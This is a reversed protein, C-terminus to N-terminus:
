LIFISTGILVAGAFVQIWKYYQYIEKKMSTIITGIIPAYIIVSFISNAIGFCLMLLLSQAISMGAAYTLVIILPSCPTVAYIIGILFYSYDKYNKILSNNSRCSNCSSCKNKKLASVVIIIGFIINVIKFTYTIIRPYVTQLHEGVISGFIASLLGLIMYMLIKGFSFIGTATMCQKTTRAEGIMKGALIPTSVSGCGIGCGFGMIIVTFFIMSISM